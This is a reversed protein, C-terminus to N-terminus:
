PKSARVPPLWLAHEARRSARWWMSPSGQLEGRSPPTWPRPAQTLKVQWSPPISISARPFVREEIKLRYKPGLEKMYSIAGYHAFKLNGLRVLDQASLALTSLFILSLLAKARM